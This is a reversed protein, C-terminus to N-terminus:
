LVGAQKLSYVLFFVGVGFIVVGILRMLLTVTKISTGLFTEFSYIPYPFIAMAAGILTICPYVIMPHEGFIAGIFVGISGFFMLVYLVPKFKRDKEVYAEVGAKCAESCVPFERTIATAYFPANYESVPKGCYVCKRGNARKGDDKQKNYSPYVGRRTNQSM